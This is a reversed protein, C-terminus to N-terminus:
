HNLFVIFLILRRILMQLNNLCYFFVYHRHFFNNIVNKITESDLNQIIFDSSIKEKVQSLNGAIEDARNM